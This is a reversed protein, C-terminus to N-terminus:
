YVRNKKLVQIIGDKEMLKEIEEVTRPFGDVLNLYGKETFIITDEHRGGIVENPHIVQIDCAFVYGPKSIVEPTQQLSNYKEGTNERM